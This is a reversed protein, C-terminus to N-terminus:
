GSGVTQGWLDQARPSKGYWAGRLGFAAGAGRWPRWAARPIRLPAPWFCPEFHCIWPRTRLPFVPHFPGLHDGSSHKSPRM